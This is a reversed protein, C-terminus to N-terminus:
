GETRLLNAPTPHWDQDTDAIALADALRETSDAVDRYELRCSRLWIGLDDPPPDGHYTLGFLRAEHEAAVHRVREMAAPDALTARVVKALRRWAPIVQHFREAPVNRLMIHAAGVLTTDQQESYVLLDATTPLDAPPRVADIVAFGIRHWRRFAERWRPDDLEYEEIQAALPALAEQTSPSTFDQPAVEWNGSYWRFAPGYAEEDSVDRYAPASRRREFAAQTALMAGFNGYDPEVWLSIAYVPGDTKSANERLYQSFDAAVLRVLEDDSVAEITGALL